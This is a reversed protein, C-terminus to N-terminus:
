AAYEPTTASPGFDAYAYKPDIKSAYNMYRKIFWRNTQVLSEEMRAYRSRAAFRSQLGEQASMNVGTDQEVYIKLSEADMKSMQGYNPLKFTSEPYLSGFRITIKGAGTPVIIFYFVHDPLVGMFLNPMVGAFICHSRDEETLGEIVPFIAKETPNFGGDLHTFGSPRWVAGDDEEDWEMFKVLRTPQQDHVIRHLFATHYPELSNEQMVKYNWPMDEWEQIPSSVLEAMKHNKVAESLRQVREGLPKAEGDLNVFIWGNWVESRLQPLSQTKSLEETSVHDGVNPTSRLTGKLDYVWHHYPCTFNTANGGCPEGLIHGRHQCVASLVRIENDNGRVVLMPEDMIKISVYDGPKPLHSTHALCVWEADFVARKEFDFWEESNYVEPPMTVASEVNQASPAIQDLIGRVFPSLEDAPLAKTTIESM